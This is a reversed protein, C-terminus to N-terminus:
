GGCCRKYKRGSGCFCADNRGPRREQRSHGEGKPRSRGGELPEDLWKDALHRLQADAHAFFMKYARCLQPADDSQRGNSRDKSCGGRCHTRWPCIRCVEPLNAKLRGFGQQKPANLMELLGGQMLNGLKWKEEVFFDCSFVDGTHEIVLYSGCEEQL